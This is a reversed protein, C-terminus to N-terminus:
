NDGQTLRRTLMETLTDNDKRVAELSEKLFQVELKLQSITTAHELCNVLMEPKMGLMLAAGVTSNNYSKMAM